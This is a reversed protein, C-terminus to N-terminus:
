YLQRLICWFPLSTELNLYRLDWMVTSGHLLYLTSEQTSLTETDHPRAWLFLFSVKSTVQSLSERQMVAPPFWLWAGPGARSLFCFFSRFGLVGNVLVWNIASSLFNRWCFYRETASLASNASYRLSVSVCTLIQNWFRLALSFRSRSASASLAALLM